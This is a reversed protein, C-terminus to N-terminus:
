QRVLRILKSRDKLSMGAENLMAELAPGSRQFTAYTEKDLDDGDPFHFLDVYHNGDHDERIEDRAATLGGPKGYYSRWDDAISPTVIVRSFLAVDKELEVARNMAKGFIVGDKHYLPGKAIGGRIM